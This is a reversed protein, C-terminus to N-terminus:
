GAAVAGAVDAPLATGDIGAKAPKPDGWPQIRVQEPDVPALQGSAADVPTYEGARNGDTDLSAPTRCMKSNWGLVISNTIHADCDSLYGVVNRDFVAGAVSGWRVSGNLFTNNRVVLGSVSQERLEATSGGGCRPGKVVCGQVFNAEIVLGQIGRGGGSIILGSNYCNSLRNGRLVVDSVDFLQICDAHRGNDIEQDYDRVTTGEVLVDSAGAIQIGDISSGGEFLSDIVRLHDARAFMGSGTVHVRVAQGGDAGDDFSLLGAITLDELRISPTSTRLGAIRPAAEGAPAIVVPEAFDGYRSGGDIRIDGYDGDGLEIRTGSGARAIATELRCPSSPTCEGSGDPSVRMVAPATTGTGPLGQCAVLSVAVLPALLGARRAAGARM